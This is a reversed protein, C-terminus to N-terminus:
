IPWIRPISRVASSGSASGHWADTRVNGPGAFSRRGAGDTAAPGPYLTRRGHAAAPQRPLDSAPARLARRGAPLTGAAPGAREARCLRHLGAHRRGARRRGLRTPIADFVAEYTVAAAEYLERREYLRAAEYQKRALKARLERIKQTADDVLEHNPYRDIFLQFARHGQAHRDPGTRLAALAQLLM